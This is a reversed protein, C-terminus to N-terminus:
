GRRTEELLKTKNLGKIKIECRSDLILISACKTGVM